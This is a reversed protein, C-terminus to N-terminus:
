VLAAAFYLGRKERPGGGAKLESREAQRGSEKQRRNKSCYPRMFFVEVSCGFGHRARAVPAIILRSSSAAQENM